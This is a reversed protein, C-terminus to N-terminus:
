TRSVPTGMTDNRPTEPEPRLTAVRPGTAAFLTIGGIAELEVRHFSAALIDRLGAESDALNDFSGQRNFACLFRRAMWNHRGSRGIVSGTTCTLSRGRTLGEPGAYAPDDREM